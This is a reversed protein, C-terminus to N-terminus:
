PKNVTSRRQKLDAEVYIITWEKPGFKIYNLEKKKKKKRGKM